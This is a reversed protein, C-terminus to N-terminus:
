SILTKRKELKAKEEPSLEAYKDRLLTRYSELKTKLANQQAYCNCNLLRSENIEIMDAIENYSNSNKMISHM